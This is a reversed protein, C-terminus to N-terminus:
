RVTRLLAEVHHNATGNQRDIVSLVEYTAGSDLIVRDQETIDMNGGALTLRNLFLQLDAIVVEAGVKVERNQPTSWRCPEDSYVVAWTKVLNGYPDPLVGETFRLIDCLNILLSDYSM